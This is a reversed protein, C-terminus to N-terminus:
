FFFHLAEVKDKFLTSNASFIGWTSVQAKTSQSAGSGLVVAVM